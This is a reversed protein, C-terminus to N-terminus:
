PRASKETMGAFSASSVANVTAKSATAINAEDIEAAQKLVSKFCDFTSRAAELASRVAAIAVDSGAPADSAARDILISMQKQVADFQSELQRSLEGKTQASIECLSRSYSLLQEVAPKLQAAALTMADRPDGAGLLAASTSVGDELLTRATNINLAAIREANSLATQVLALMADVSAKNAASFQEATSFM